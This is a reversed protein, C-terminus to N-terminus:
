SSLSLFTKSGDFRADFAAEVEDVRAQRARLLAVFRAVYFVVFSGFSAALVKALADDADPTAWGARSMAAVAILIVAQQLLVFYNFEDIITIYPTEPLMSTTVFKFAASALILTIILSLRDSVDAPDIAFVSFNAVAILAQMSLINWVYYASQRTMMLGIHARCYQAGTRSEESRSLLALDEGATWDTSDYAILRPAHMRFLQSVSARGSISSRQVDSFRLAVHRVDWASTITIHLQQLDIPFQRLEFLEEFVGQVRLNQHVWVSSSTGMGAVKGRDAPSIEQSSGEDGLTVRWWEERDRTEELLNLLRLQPKWKFMDSRWQRETDAFPLNSVEERYSARVNLQCEFSQEVTSIKTVKWVFFQLNVIRQQTGAMSEIIAADSQTSTAGDDDLLKWSFNETQVGVRKHAGLGSLTREM